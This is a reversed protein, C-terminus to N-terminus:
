IKSKSKKIKNKIARFDPFSLILRKTLPSHVMLYEKIKDNLKETDDKFKTISYDKVKLVVIASIIIDVLFIIMLTIGVITTTSGMYDILKELLPNIKYMVFIGGLCFPIATELCIRGNLNFKMNSYDWWRANFLKEMIFSTFYELAMCIFSALIFVTLIDNAYKKLLSVILIVGVGYIPSYPGILFGRNVFKKEVFLAYIVELLWGIFAYIIFLIFLKAFNQM